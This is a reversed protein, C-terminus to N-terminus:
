LAPSKVGRKVRPTKAAQSARTGRGIKPTLADKDGAAYPPNVQGKRAAVPPNGTLQSAIWNQKINKSANFDAHETHGCKKCVFIAQSKRNKKDTYGCTPNSCKQSTYKASVYEIAIGREPAKYELMEQQRAFSWAHLRRQTDGRVRRMRTRINTLDELVLTTGAILGALILTTLNHDSWARFRSWKGSREKLRRKSSKTGKRQLSQQTKFYQRDINHWRPDGLFKETSLVAPNVIGRDCGVVLGINLKAVEVDKTFTLLLEWSGDSRQRVKGSDTKWGAYRELQKHRVFEVEIRRGLTAFTASKLDPRLKMTHGDYPISIGNSHPCSVKKGDARRKRLSQISGYALRQTNCVFQAKLGKYKEMLPYYVAHHLDVYNKVDHEFAYAAADNYVGTVLPRLPAFAAADEATVKLTVAVTRSLQM